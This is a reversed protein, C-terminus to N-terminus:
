RDGPLGLRRRLDPAITNAERALPTESGHSNCTDVLIKGVLPAELDTALGPLAPCPVALVILEGFRAAQEPTGTTARPGLPETAKVLDEPHRSSFLVEHGGQVLVRGLTGGLWGAGIVGTRM